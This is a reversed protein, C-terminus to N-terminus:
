VELLVQIQLLIMNLLETSPCKSKKLIGTLTLLVESSTTNTRIVVVQYGQDSQRETSVCGKVPRTEEYTSAVYDTVLPTDQGCYPEMAGGQQLALSVLVLFTSLHMKKMVNKSRIECIIEFHITVFVM